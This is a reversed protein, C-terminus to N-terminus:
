ASGFTPSLYITIEVSFRYAFRERWKSAYAYGIVKGTDDEAVLWPLEDSQIKSIRAFINDSTITETEFTVVTKSIYHNYIEAISIVDKDLVSRIM